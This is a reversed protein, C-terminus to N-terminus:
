KVKNLAHQASMDMQVALKEIESACYNTDGDCSKACTPITNRCQQAAQRLNRAATTAYEQKLNKSSERNKVAKPM